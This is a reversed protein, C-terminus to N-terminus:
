INIYNLQLYYSLIININKTIHLNYEQIVFSVFLFNFVHYMEGCHYDNKPLCKKITKYIM